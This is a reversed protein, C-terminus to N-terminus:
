IPRRAVFQIAERNMRRALSRLYANTEPDRVKDIDKWASTGVAYAFVAALPALALAEGILDEALLQLWPAIYARVFQSELAANACIERRFHQLLYEFSFFPPGVYAEAWDLFTCRDGSIVINWPNLDLHGLANPIQLGDLLSFSDQIRLKLLSLERQNLMPPSVKPQQEMLERVVDFFPDISAVLAKTRLDHAGSRLVSEYSRIAEIQLTALEAAAQKWLVINKTDGLNTGEVESSLWGNWQKRTGLIKPMFTPFLEALRLTIPFERQNPEGVAKFWVAQRNTEFRILSFAPGANLQRLRGSLELGIPRIADATWDQLSNLWGRRAFPSSPDGEYRDLEHLCEQLIRFEAGNRFSETTLSPILEWATKDSSEEGEACEVVEYHNGNPDGVPASNKPTFLCVATLGWDTKIAGTLSEATREWRPIEVFPFAFGAETRTLLVRPGKCGLAVVRCTERESQEQSEV